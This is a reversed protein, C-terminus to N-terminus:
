DASEFESAPKVKVKVSPDANSRTEAPFAIQSEHHQLEQMQQNQLFQQQM